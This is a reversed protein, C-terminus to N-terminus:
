TVKKVRGKWYLLRSSIISSINHESEPLGLVYKRKVDLAFEEIEAFSLGFLEESLHSQHESIDIAARDQFLSLWQMIMEQKPKPIDVSLQFRRFIAKDLAEDHNTAGIVMVHSPLMDIQKLLSNVLRKMEGSENEDSRTKGISDFEDFFLVCRRSKIHEFLIDLNQASEGLFRNIIGEYKVVYFPVMLHNAMAEALSTKGNGPAGSLLIKHRPELNYSRLLDRRSHEEIVETCQEVIEEPLVLDAFVKQPKLEYFANQLESIFTPAPSSFPQSNQEIILSRMREAFNYHHKSSADEAIAEATMKFRSIDGKMGTEVLSLILDSRAM